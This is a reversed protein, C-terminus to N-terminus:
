AADQEREDIAIELLEINWWREASFSNHTHSGRADCDHCKVFYISELEPIQLSELVVLEGRGGCFPCPKLETSATQTTYM